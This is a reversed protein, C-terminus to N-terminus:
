AGATSSTNQMAGPLALHQSGVATWVGTLATERVYDAFRRPERATVRVIADTVGSARNERFYRELDLMRDAITEPMGEALLGHRLDEPPLSIHRIVRGLAASLEGAIEDYTLAEPGTITYIRGDHGPETLAKVAVAAVDRVDVHSIRAAGSASYFVNEARISAAMFTVTNQM